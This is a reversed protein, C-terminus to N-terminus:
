RELVREVVRAPVGVALAWPVEISELVVANAGIAVGDAITLDGIVKAGSGLQVDDGIRPAGNAGRIPGGTGGIVVDSQITCNAGIRVGPGIVVGSTHFIRLGPGIVTDPSIDAGTIVQNLQKVGLAVIRGAGGAGHAANAARVLLTALGRVSLLFQVTGARGSGLGVSVRNSEVDAAVLRVLASV